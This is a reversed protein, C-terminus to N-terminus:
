PYDEPNEVLFSQAQAVRLLQVDSSVFTFSGFNTQNRAQEQAIKAATLQIADLSRIRLNAPLNFALTVIQKLQINFDLPIITYSFRDNRIQHYLFSAQRKTYIGQRYLRALTTASEAFTLESIIAQKNVVFTKLWTTGKEAHYLKLFANTDLFVYEM